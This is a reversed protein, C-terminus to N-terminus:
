FRDGEAGFSLGDTQDHQTHSARSFRGQHLSECRIQINQVFWGVNDVEIWGTMINGVWCINTRGIM